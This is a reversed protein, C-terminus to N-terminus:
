KGPVYVSLFGDITYVTGEITVRSHCRLTQNYGELEPLIEFTPGEPETILTRMNTFQM